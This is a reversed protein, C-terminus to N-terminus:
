LLVWFYFWSKSGKCLTFYRQWFFDQRGGSVFRESWSRMMRAASITWVPYLFICTVAFFRSNQLTQWLFGDIFLFSFLSLDSYFFSFWLVLGSFLAFSLGSFWFLDYFSGTFFNLFLVLCFVAPCLVMLFYFVLLMWGPLFSDGSPMQWFICSSWSGPYEINRYIFKLESIFKLCIDRNWSSGALIKGVQFGFIPKLSSHMSSLSSTGIYGPHILYRFTHMYRYVQVGPRIGSGVLIHSDVPLCSDIFALRCSVHSLSYYVLIYLTCMSMYFFISLSSSIIQGEKEAQIRRAAWYGAAGYTLVLWVM